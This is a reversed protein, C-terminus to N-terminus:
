QVDMYLVHYIKTEANVTKWSLLTNNKNDWLIKSDVIKDADFNTMITNCFEFKQKMIVLSKNKSQKRKFYCSILLRQDLWM